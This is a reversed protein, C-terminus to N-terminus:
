QETRQDQPDADVHSPASNKQSVEKLPSSAKEIKPTSIKREIPKQEPLRINVRPIPVPINFKYFIWVILVVLLAIIVGKIAMPNDAGFGKELLYFIPWSIFGGEDTYTNAKPDDLVPFNLVASILLMFILFQKTLINILHGKVLVLVGFVVSVAFFPPTGM